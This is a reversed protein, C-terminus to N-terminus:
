AVPESCRRAYLAYSIAGMLASFLPSIMSIGYPSSAQAAIAYRWYTMCGVQVTTLLIFYVFTLFNSRPSRTVIAFCLAVHLALLVVGGLIQPPHHFVVGLHLAMASWYCGYAVTSFLIGRIFDSSIALKMTTSLSCESLAHDPTATTM